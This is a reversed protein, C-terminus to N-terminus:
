EFKDGGTNKGAHYSLVEVVHGDGRPTVTILESISAVKQITKDNIEKQNETGDKVLLATWGNAGAGAAAAAEIADNFANTKEEIKQELFNITELVEEITVQGDEAIKNLQAIVEDITTADVKGDLLPLIKKLIALIDSANNINALIANWNTAM